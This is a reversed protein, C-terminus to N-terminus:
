NCVHSFVAEREILIGNTQYSKAFNNASYGKVRQPSYPVYIITEKSTLERVEFAREIANTVFQNLTINNKAAEIAAKRHLEPSLRVNFTGKFEKDPEKGIAKCMELYNDISQHFMAELEEISTGHFSLSDAIGFVEGIFLNDEAEYAITAHYGNYEMMSSM